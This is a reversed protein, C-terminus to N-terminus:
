VGGLNPTLNQERAERAAALTAAKYDRAAKRAVKEADKEIRADVAQRAGEATIIGGKQVVRRDTQQRRQRAQTAATMTAVQREALDKLEAMNESARMFRLLRGQICVGQTQIQYQIKSAYARYSRITTPTPTRLATPDEPEPSPTRPPHVLKRYVIEPNYPILGSKEWASLITTKKFTEDRITKIAHLFEVKNFNICGTRSASEVARQHYHKYPQFVM